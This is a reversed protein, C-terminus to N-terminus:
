RISNGARGASGPAEPRVGAHIAIIGGATLVWRVEGLGSAVMREGLEHPAASTHSLRRVIDDHEFRDSRPQLVDGNGLHTVRPRGRGADEAADGSGAGVEQDGCQALAARVDPRGGQALRVGGPDGPRSRALGDHHRVVVHGGHFRREGRVAVLDGRDDRLRRGAVHPHDRRTVPEVLPEGLDCVPVARQQDQVLRGRANIREGLRLDLFPEVYDEASPGGQQDSVPEGGDFVSVPDDHEIVAPDDFFARGLVQTMEPVDPRGVQRRVEPGARVGALDGVEGVM